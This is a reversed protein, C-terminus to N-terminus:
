GTRGWCLIRWSWKHNKWRPNNILGYLNCLGMM